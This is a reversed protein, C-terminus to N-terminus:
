VNEPSIMALETLADMMVRTSVHIVTIITIGVNHACAQTQFAHSVNNPVPCVVNVRGGIIGTIRVYFIAHIKEIYAMCTQIQVNTARETRIVHVTGACHPVNNIVSLDM